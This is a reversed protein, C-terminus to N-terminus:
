RPVDVTRVLKWRCVDNGGVTVAEHDNLMIIEYGYLPQCFAPHGYASEFWSQNDDGERRYMWKAQSDM